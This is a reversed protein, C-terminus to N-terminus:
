PSFERDSFLAFLRGPVMYFGGRSTLGTFGFGGGIRLGDVTDTPKPRNRIVLLYLALNVKAEEVTVLVM